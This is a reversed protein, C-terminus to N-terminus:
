IDLFLKLKTLLLNTYAAKDYHHDLKDNNIFKEKLLGNKGLCFTDLNLYSINLKDKTWDEINSNFECTLNTREHQSSTVKARAKAVDGSSSKDPITPLPASIIIVEECQLSAKKIFDKYKEETEKRIEKISNKNKESRLWMVFGCDVEGLLIIIIDRKKENIKSEFIPMAQTKSNPNSLGSITAGVVVKVEWNYKPFTYKFKKSHEFPFAHSDGLVLIENM